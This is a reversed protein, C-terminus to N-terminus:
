GKVAGLMVGKVFYKQIFPYIALVPIMAVVIVAHKLQDPIATRNGEMIDFLSSSEASMVIDRLVLQLTYKRFDRLYILPGMFDNWHGVVVWLAITALAAKSLPVVIKFLTYFDNSGDMRASEILDSPITSYFSRLILVNYASILSGAVLAWLSDILGLKSMVLFAPVMGGSFWLTVMIMANYVKKGSFNAFALPYAALSTFLLTLVCGFAAVFITNGYARLITVTQFVKIYSALSFGVPLITVRNSMIALEDSVSMSLLNMFPLIIILCFLGLFLYILIDALWDRWSSHQSIM